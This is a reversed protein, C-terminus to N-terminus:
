NRPVLRVIRGDESAAYLDTGKSGAALIRSAAALKVSKVLSGRQADLMTMTRTTADWVYLDARLQFLVNGAVEAAKWMLLGGPHDWPLSHFCHLGHQPVQQYLREGILVPSDVLQSETLIRWINRGNNLDYAWLYQDTGAVYIAEDGIVPSCVIPALLRKSWYQQGTAPHLVILTGDPAVASLYSGSLVPAVHLAHSVQYARLHQGVTGSHWAVQGNRSGYILYQGFLVPPTNAIQLLSQRQLQAGTNADLVLVAGGTTVYVRDGPFTIGLVEEITEAVQMRWLRNGDAVKVRTLYNEGDLVFVSDGQVTFLKIQRDGGLYQWAVRYNIEGAAVPGIVHSREVEAVVAASAGNTSSSGSSSGSSSAYPGSSTKSGSECGTVIALAMVAMGAAVSLTCSRNSPQPRSKRSNRHTPTM